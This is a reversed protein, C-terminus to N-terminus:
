RPRGGGGGRSGGGSNGGGSNGGGRSPSSSRDMSGGNGREVGTGRSPSTGREYTRNPRSERQERTSNPPRTAPRTVSGRDMPRESPRTLNEERRPATTARRDQPVTGAVRNTAPRSLGVPDRLQMQPRTGGGNGGSGAGGSNMSPRHGVVVGSSGGVVVPTYCYSGGYPGMYPGGYWPDYWPSGWGWPRHWGWPRNWGWYPYRGTWYPDWWGTGYGFSMNWGGGWGYGMGWGPGNWGTQWGMMGMGTGVGMGFGFRGMNYYYPDNYAVDYYNGGYPVGTVQKAAGDDYYDDQPSVSKATAEEPAMPTTSAVPPATSPMYYVDDRVEGVQQMSSCSAFTVAMLLLVTASSIGHRGVAMIPHPSTKM